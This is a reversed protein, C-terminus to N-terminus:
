PPEINNENYTEILTNPTKRILKQQILNYKMVHSKTGKIIWKVNM